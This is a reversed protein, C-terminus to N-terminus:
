QDKPEMENLERLLLNVDINHMRAGNEITERTAGMCGICAMGHRTFIDRAEPFARLVDIIPTEKNVM